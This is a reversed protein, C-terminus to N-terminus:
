QAFKVYRTRNHDSKRGFKVSVRRARLRNVVRNLVTRLSGSSGPLVEAKKKGLVRTLTRALDTMTGIWIKENKSRELMSLVGELVVTDAKNSQNNKRNTKSNLAM